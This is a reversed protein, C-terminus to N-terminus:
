KVAERLKQFVDSHILKDMVVEDYDPLDIIGIVERCMAKLADLEAKLSKIKASDIESQGEPYYDLYFRILGDSEQKQILSVTEISRGTSIAHVIMAELTENRKELVKRVYKRIEESM